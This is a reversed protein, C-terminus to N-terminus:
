EYVILHKRFFLSAILFLISAISFIYPIHWFMDLPIGYLADYMIGWLIIEYYKPIIFVLIISIILPLYWFGWLITSFVIIGLLVRIKTNNVM